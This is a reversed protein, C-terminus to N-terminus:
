LSVEQVEINYTAKMYQRAKEMASRVDPGIPNSVNSGDGNMYYYKLKTIDVQFDNNM